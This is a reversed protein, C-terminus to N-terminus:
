LMQVISTWRRLRQAPTRQTQQSYEYVGIWKVIHYINVIIFDIM